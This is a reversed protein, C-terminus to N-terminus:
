KTQSEKSLISINGIQQILKKFASTHKYKDPESLMYATIERPHEYASPPLNEFFSAIENPIQRVHYEKGPNYFWIEVEAVNPRSIDKFIPIPVWQDNFIWLPYDITDPNYRRMVELKEPLKGNWVKWGLNKFTEFWLDQFQRQHLHWLEHILTIRSFLQSIDPYCIINDPRTHPMGGDATPMLQIIFVKKLDSLLRFPIFSYSGELYSKAYNTDRLSVQNARYTLNRRSLSNSKDDHCEELYFDKQEAKDLIAQAELKNSILEFELSGHESSNTNGM